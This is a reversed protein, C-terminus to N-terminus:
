EKAGAQKLIEVIEVHGMQEAIMLATTDYKDKTNVDAGADIL